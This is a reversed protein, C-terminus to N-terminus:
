DMGCRTPLLKGTKWQQLNTKGKRSKGLFPTMCDTRKDDVTKTHRSHQKQFKNKNESADM